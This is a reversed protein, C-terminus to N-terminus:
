AARAPGSAPQRGDGGHPTGLADADAPDDHGRDRRAGLVGDRVAICRLVPLVHPGGADRGPLRGLHQAHAWEPRLGNRPHHHVLPCRRRRHDARQRARRTLGLPPGPRRRAPDAPELRHDRLLLDLDLVRLGDRGLPRDRRLHPADGRRRRHDRDPGLVGRHDPRQGTRWFAETALSFYVVLGILIVLISAERRRVLAAAVRRGFGARQPLPPQANAAAQAM